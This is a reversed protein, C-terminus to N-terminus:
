VAIAAIRTVRRRVVGYGLRKVGHRDLVAVPLNPVSRAKIPPLASQDRDGCESGQPEVGLRCFEGLRRQVYPEAASLDDFGQDLGAGIAAEGRGEVRQGRQALRDASNNRTLHSARDASRRSTPRLVRDFNGAHRGGKLRHGARLGSRKYADNEPWAKLQPMAPYVWPLLDDLRSQPHRNVIRTIVDALYRHPEVGLLKCTEILSAIVAWHEAGGDSGAFLANKRNLAMSRLPAATGIEDEGSDFVSASGKTGDVVPFIVVSIEDILGARLFAANTVGGGNVELRKIGLERNLIDLALELDLELTGAFIYSVGDERLGALYGGTVQETLVVVIPDGGIDTRGWAIKGLPDLVVGCAAADRRAFWNQRPYHQDTHAPYADRKGYGQGSVRGILWANVGLQDHLREFIEGRSVDEPRWRSTRIRGDISAVAHCIVYPKM